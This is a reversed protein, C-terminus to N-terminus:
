VQSKKENGMSEDSLVFQFSYEICAKLLITQAFPHHLLHLITCHRNDLRRPNAVFILGILLIHPNVVLNGM